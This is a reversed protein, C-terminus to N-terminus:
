PNVCGACAPWGVIRVVVCVMLVLVRELSGWACGRLLWASFLALRFLVSCKMPPCCLGAVHLACIM